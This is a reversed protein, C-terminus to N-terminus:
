KIEEQKTAHHYKQLLEEYLSKNKRIDFVWQRPSSFQVSNGFIEDVAKAVDDAYDDGAIIGDERIHWLSNIIDLKVIEYDHCGDLYIRSFKFDNNLNSFFETSSMKNAEIFDYGSLNKKFVPYLDKGYEEEFKRRYAPISSATESEWLDCCHLTINKHKILNALYLTSKGFLCGVELIHGDVPAESLVNRYVKKHQSSFWGFIDNYRMDFNEMLECDYLDKEEARFLKMEKVINLSAFKIGCYYFHNRPNHIIEHRGQKYYVEEKNHCNIGTAIDPQNNNHLFDLDRCDRLGYSSLVASADVCFDHFDKRNLISKKYLNFYKEFNPLSKLINANNLFHISNGNFVSSVIKWTEEQTDNIHVSHKGVNCM